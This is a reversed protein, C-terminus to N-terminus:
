CVMVNTYRCVRVGDVEEGSANGLAVAAVAVGSPLFSAGLLYLSSVRLHTATYRMRNTYSDICVQAITITAITIAVITAITIAVKTGYATIYRPIQNHIYVENDM